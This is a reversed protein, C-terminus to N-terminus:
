QDRDQALHMSDMVECGIEMVEM